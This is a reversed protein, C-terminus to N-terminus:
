ILSNKVCVHMCLKVIGWRGGLHLGDCRVASCTTQKHHWKDRPEVGSGRWPTVAPDDSWLHVSFLCLKDNNLVSSVTAQSREGAGSDDGCHQVVWSKRASKMCGYKSIYLYKRSSYTCSWDTLIFLLPVRVVHLLIVLLCMSWASSLGVKVDLRATLTGTLGTLLM